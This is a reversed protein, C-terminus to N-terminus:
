ITLEADVKQLIMNNTIVFSDGDDLRVANYKSQPNEKLKIFVGYYINSVIELDSTPSSDMSSVVFLEAPKIDDIHKIFSKNNIKM